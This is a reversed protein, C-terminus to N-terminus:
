GLHGLVEIELRNLVAIGAHQEAWSTCARACDELRRRQWADLNSSNLDYLSDVFTEDAGNSPESQPLAASEKWDSPSAQCCKVHVHVQPAKKDDATMTLTSKVVLGLPKGSAEAKPLRSWCVCRYEDDSAEYDVKWCQPAFVKAAELGMAFMKMNPLLVRQCVASCEARRKAREKQREEAARRQEERAKRIAEQQAEAVKRIHETFAADSM